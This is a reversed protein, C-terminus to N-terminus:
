RRVKHSRRRAPRAVLALVIFPAVALCALAWSLGAQQAILGVALPGIAGALGAADSWFMAIGSQGPLCGYLEAKAVPYWCATAISLGALVALRAGLWPLMLFAPYLVAAAAASVRLAMRGSVRRAVAVFLADGALGAGLRVAVGAAAEAPSAHVVDVLYIGLYGTLVDLMLDIVQLLVLWRAVEADRVAGLAERWTPTPGDSDEAREADEVSEADEARVAVTFRAPGGAAAIGVAVAAAGALLLYAWRWTGGILLVAALLLPGAVAGASGSLNWAAMSQQQRGPEADMLAAQTLGVFAGSAPFFAILAVLLTLFTHAFAVAVLSGALVVGGALVMRKRARGAGAVLGIPLSLLGGVLLPM